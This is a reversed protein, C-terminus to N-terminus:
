VMNETHMPGTSQCSVRLLIAPWSYDTGLLYGLYGAPDLIHCYIKLTDIFSLPLKM